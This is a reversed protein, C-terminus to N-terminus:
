RRGQKEAVEGDCHNEGARPGKTLNERIILSGRGRNENAQCLRRGRGKLNRLKLVSKFVASWSGCRGVEGM